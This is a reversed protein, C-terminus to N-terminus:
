LFFPDPPNAKSNLEDESGGEKENSSQMNLGECLNMSKLRVLVSYVSDLCRHKNSVVVLAKEITSRLERGMGGEDWALERPRETADSTKRGDERDVYALSSSPKSRM